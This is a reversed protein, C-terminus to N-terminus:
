GSTRPSFLVDKRQILFMNGRFKGYNLIPPYKIVSVETTNDNIQEDNKIKEIIVSTDLIVM